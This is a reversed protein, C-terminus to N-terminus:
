DYAGVSQKHQQFIIEFSATECTKFEVMPCFKGVFKVEWRDLSNAFQLLLRIGNEDSENKYSIITANTVGSAVQDSCNKMTSNMLREISLVM